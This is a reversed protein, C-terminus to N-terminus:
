PLFSARVLSHRCREFGRKMSVAEYRDHSTSFVYVLRLTDSSPGYFVLICPTTTQHGSDPVGLM